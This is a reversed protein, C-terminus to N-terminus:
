QVSCFDRVALLNTQLPSNKRLPFFKSNVLSPSHFFLIITETFFHDSAMFTTFENSFCKGTGLTSAQDTVVAEQELEQKSNNAPSCNKKQDKRRKFFLPDRGEFPMYAGRVWLDTV